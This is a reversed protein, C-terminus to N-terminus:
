KERHARTKRHTKRNKQKKVIQTLRDTQRNKCKHREALRNRKANKDMQRNTNNYKHKDAQRETKQM